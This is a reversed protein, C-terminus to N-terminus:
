LVSDALRALNQLTRELPPRKRWSALDLEDSQALYHEQIKRLQAAVAPAYVILSVEANLAFSRIDINTSGILAISDDVSFHKAHLFRPRYLHVHVGDALLEDYYSRQAFQTLRQNGHLSVILRVEVGRRAASRLATLFPEDPVFYPTTMVVRERAAYVLAIFLEEANERQYGPSSPLLQAAAEGAPQITPFFREAELDGGTEIFRDALLVAQIQAVVPGTVRVVLEENPHGPVFEPDVLNQSGAYGIHGDIVALKRHNRLDFRAANHRFFGVPLMQVVEVGDRLMQPGLRALGARSGVSDAMMRCIVGRKVARGLAEAVSQGTADDSLIYTLVHVHHTAADIDAILRALSGAYDPLFEVHNGAFVDFNGLDAALAPLHSLYSPLQPQCVVPGRLRAQAETIQRSALMQQAIRERPVRIRGFLAYMALGPWPALFILLLWTRSAAATRQQPVYVLMTIRIVWASGLYLLSWSSMFRPPHFFHAANDM